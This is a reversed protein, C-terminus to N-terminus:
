STYSLFAQLMAVKFRERIANIKPNTTELKEVKGAKKRYEKLWSMFWRLNFVTIKCQNYNHIMESTIDLLFRLVRYDQKSLKFGEDRLIFMIDRRIQCFRFLVCDHKKMNRLDRFMIFLLINAPVFLLYFLM